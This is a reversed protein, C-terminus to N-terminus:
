DEEGGGKGEKREERGAEDVIVGTSEGEDGEKGEVEEGRRELRERFCGRAVANPSEAAGEEGDIEKETVVSRDWGGILGTRGSLERRGKREGCCKGGRGDEGRAEGGIEGYEGEEEEGGEPEAREWDEARREGDFRGDHEGCKQRHSCNPAQNSESSSCDLDGDSQQGTDSDNRRNSSSEQRTPVLIFNSARPILSHGDNRVLLETSEHGPSDEREIRRRLGLKKREVRCARARRRVSSRECRTAGQLSIRM